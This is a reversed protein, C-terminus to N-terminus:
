DGSKENQELALIQHAIEDLGAIGAADHFRDANAQRLNPVAVALQVQNGVALDLADNIIGLSVDVGHDIDPHRRAAVQFSDKSRHVLGAPAQPLSALFDEVLRLNM